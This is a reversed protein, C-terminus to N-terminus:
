VGRDTKLKKRQEFLEVAKDVANAFHAHLNEVVKKQQEDTECKVLNQVCLMWVYDSCCNRLDHHYDDFASTDSKCFVRVVKPQLVPSNPELEVDINSETNAVSKLKKANKMEKLELHVLELFSNLYDNCVAYKIKCQLMWSLIMDLYESNKKRRKRFWGNFIM